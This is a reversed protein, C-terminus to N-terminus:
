ETNGAPLHAAKWDMAMRIRARGSPHDFFVFEELATPDLKRYAGLKLAVKCEGDPERSTNMGFQDAERETTRVISNLVPTMLFTFTVFILVLLPFGAPDAIGHVRWRAGWRQLARDFVFRAIAFGFLAVVGFYITLKAGHNLVYHGMEHAMVARIEPLSCQKILNDNLAIRTTGLMGAVNASVRTTQRSADVEFVQTVPIQNARAMALIPDRIKQDTLPKYTNFLPEVYVPAVLNGFFSLVVVVLTGWLWWSRPARRFVAYLISLAIAGAILGVVLGTLQETFWPVFTQTAFGYQHERVFFQYFTLPFGLVSTILIFGLAYIVVQLTKFKTLREAFDRLRASIKSALLFIAIAAGVLFNWLLLWYGGEFYADSKARQDAPVTALWAKTAATPDFSNTAEVSTTSTSREQARVPAAFILCCFVTALLIRFFM